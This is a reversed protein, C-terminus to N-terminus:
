KPEASQKEKRDPFAPPFSKYAPTNEWKLFELTESELGLVAPVVKRRHQWKKNPLPYDRTTELGIRLPRIVFM